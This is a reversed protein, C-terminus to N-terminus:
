MINSNKQLQQNSANENKRIANVLANFLMNDINGNKVDESYIITLAQKPSMEDKYVRKETLASYKDALHLIQLNIDSITNKNSYSNDHHYRVLKLVENNIGSFKLIQYGLESHLDMIKHEEPTLLGNKNLINPPILVKGFDHLIAGDKLDKINIQERIAPPLNKVISVCLDQTNKCHGTKLENLEKLNLHIPINNKSLIKQIEKNNSISNKILNENFLALPSNNQFSDGIGSM